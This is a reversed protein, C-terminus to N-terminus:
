EYIDKGKRFYNIVFYGYPIDTKDRFLKIFEDKTDFTNYEDTIKSLENNNTRFYVNIMMNNRIIPPVSKFNQSALIISVGYHRHRTPFLALESKAGFMGISDDVVLLFEPYLEKPMKKGERSKIPVYEEEDKDYRFYWKFEAERREKMVTDVIYDIIDDGYVSFINDGDFFGTLTDDLNKATPSIMFRNMKPFRTRTKRLIERILHSKGSGRSGVLQITFPKDDPITFRIAEPKAHADAM